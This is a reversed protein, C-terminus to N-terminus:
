FFTRVLETVRGRSDLVPILQWKDFVTCPHSVGFAIWSGVEVMGEAVPSLRLFAHQDNLKVVECGALADDVWGSDRRLRQPVPLDQDFSVDRRGMTLLALGPEPRSCVQAWVHIAAVFGGPQAGPRTLPSTRLYLGDDNTLYAGSRLITRWDGAFTQAVLDFHTSGGATVIVDPGECLPALRVAVSRVWTLYDRVREVGTASVDHGLAAEYGAVGILRLRPSAVAAAAVADTTPDDRCGTRTGVAGLEVCVDVPRSAGAARLAETMLTVGRVSDVWCILRFDPHRDLEAALWALGAADVLENALVVERVGFARFTRVQSITAATVACAGADFQRALLQPSMHTKGHPALEVGHRACWGAMTALNHSLAEASLVCVPGPPGADFLDPTGACIEAATQGAWAAPLGKYRWDVRDDGLAAVAAANILSGM